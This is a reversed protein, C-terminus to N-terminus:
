RHEDTNDKEDTHEIDATLNTQNKKAVFKVSKWQNKM